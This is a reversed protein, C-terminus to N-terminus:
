DEEGRGERRVRLRERLEEISKARPTTGVLSLPGRTTSGQGSEKAKKFNNGGGGIEEAKEEENGGGKRGSPKSADRAEKPLTGGKEHKQDGADDDEEEEEEEEEGEEESEELVGDSDGDNEDESDEVEGEGVENADERMRKSREKEEKEKAARETQLETVTKMNAPDFKMKKGRKSEEKKLQKPAAQRKNKFYKANAEGNNNDDKPLYLEAPVLNVMRSFYANNEALRRRLFSEDQIAMVGSFHQVLIFVLYFDQIPVYVGHILAFTRTFSTLMDPM